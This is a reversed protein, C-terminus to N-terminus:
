TFMRVRRLCLRPYATVMWMGSTQIVVMINLGVVLVSFAEFFFTEIRGSSFGKLVFELRGDRDADPVTFCDRINGTSLLQGEAIKEYTNNGTCEYIWYWENGGAPVFEIRGDGDFDGFAITAAPAEWCSTDPNDAFILDYQNNGVSEYIGLYAYPTARNKVIEPLGDQDVDFACIPLVQAPGVTDRWVEQTPYSFSDPSETISLLKAPPTDVATQIALDFLGDCDFDGIDWV